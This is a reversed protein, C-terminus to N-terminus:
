RPGSGLNRAFYGVAPRGGIAWAPHEARHTRTGFKRGKTVSWKREQAIRVLGLGCRQNVAACIRNQNFGCLVQQLGLGRHYTCLSCYGYTAFVYDHNSLHCDFGGARHQKASLNTCRQCGKLGKFDVHDAKVAGGPWSLHALM